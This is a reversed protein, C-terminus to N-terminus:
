GLLIRMGAIKVVNGGDLDIKVSKIKVTGPQIEVADAKGHALSAKTAEVSVGAQLDGLADFQGVRVGPQGLGDGDFSSAGFTGTKISAAGGKELLLFAKGDATAVSVDDEGSIAANAGVVSVAGNEAVRVSAKGPGSGAVISADGDTVRAKLGQKGALTLVGDVAEVTTTNEARVLITENAAVEISEKAALTVWREAVVSVVGTGAAGYAEKAKAEAANAADVAKKAADNAAYWMAMEVNYKARLKSTTHRYWGGARWMVDAKAVAAVAAKRAAVAAKGLGEATEKKLTEMIADQLDETEAPAYLAITPSWYLSRKEGYLALTHQAGLTHAPAGLLNFPYAFLPQSITVPKVEGIAKAMAVWKNATDYTAKATTLEGWLDMLWSILGSFSSKASQYQAIISKATEARKWNPDKDYQDKADDFARQKTIADDSANKATQYDDLKAMSDPDIGLPPVHGTAHAKFAAIDDLSKQIAINDTKCQRAAAVVVPAHLQPNKMIEDSTAWGHAWRSKWKDNIDDRWPSVAEAGAAAGVGAGVETGRAGADNSGAVLAGAGAGAAAGLAGVIQANGQMGAETDEASGQAAQQKRLEAEDTERQVLLAGFGAMAADAKKALVKCQACDSGACVALNVKWYTRYETDLKTKADNVNAAGNKAQELLNLGTKRVTLVLDLSTQVLGVFFDLGEAALIAAGKKDV